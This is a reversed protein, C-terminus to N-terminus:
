SDVDTQQQRKGLQKKKKEHLGRELFVFVETVTCVKNYM